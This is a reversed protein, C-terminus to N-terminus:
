RELKGVLIKYASRMQGMKFCAERIDRGFQSPLNERVHLSPFLYSVVLVQHLHTVGEVRVSDRSIGTTEVDESAIVSLIKRPIRKSKM